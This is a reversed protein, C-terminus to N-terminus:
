IDKHMWFIPVGKADRYPTQTLTQVVLQGACQPPPPPSPISPPPPPPPPPSTISSCPPPPPPPPSTISSCPPPPPPSTISSCPPPPPPPPSTISSCPPPPPPPPSTISSCPTPPPPSGVVCTSGSGRDRRPIQADTMTGTQKQSSMEESSMRSFRLLTEMPVFSMMAGANQVPTTLAYGLHAYFHQKDHTTLCLREFGRSKSYRETEEMLTRGYGRGREAKSVVVSEVFLSSSHGVVRSLRAHGLLREVEGHGQLLVLCVPFEPCSKELSHVRAAQSRQWETNVLDACPALLDPRRHIPVVRITGPRGSDVLPKEKVEGDLASIECVKEVYQTRCDSISIPRLHLNLAETKPESRYNSDLHDKWSSDGEHKMKCYGSVLYFLLHCCFVCM